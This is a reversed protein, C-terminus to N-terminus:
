FTDLAMGKRYLFSFREDSARFNLFSFDWVKDLTVLMAEYREEIAEDPVGLTTLLTIFQRNLYCPLQRAYQVVQSQPRRSM